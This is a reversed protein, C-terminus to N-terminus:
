RRARWTRHAVLAVALWVITRLAMAVLSDNAVVDGTRRIVLLALFVGGHAAAVAWAAVGASSRGRWIGLAVLVGIAGAAVNYQVLWSLVPYDPVDLGTLVRTGAVVSLASFVLGVAAAVRVAVSTGPSRGARMKLSAKM